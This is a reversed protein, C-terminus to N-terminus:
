SRVIRVTSITERSGTIEPSGTCQPPPVSTSLLSLSLSLTDSCQSYNCPARVRRKARGSLEAASRNREASASRKRPHWITRYNYMARSHSAVALPYTHLFLLLLSSSIAIVVPCSTGIRLSQARTLMRRDAATNNYRHSHFMYYDWVYVLKICKIIM